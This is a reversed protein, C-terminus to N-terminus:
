LSNEIALALKDVLWRVEWDTTRLLPLAADVSLDTTLMDGNRHREIPDDNM